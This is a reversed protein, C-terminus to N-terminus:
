ERAEDRLEKKQQISGNPPVSHESRLLELNVADKSNAVEPSSAM